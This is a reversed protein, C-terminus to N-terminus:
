AQFTYVSELQVTKVKIGKFICKHVHKTDKGATLSFVTDCIM